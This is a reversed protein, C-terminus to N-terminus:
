PEIHIPLVGGLRQAPTHGFVSQAVIFISGVGVDAVLDTMLEAVFDTV